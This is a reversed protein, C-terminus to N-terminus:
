ALMDLEFEAIRAALGHRADGEARRCVKVDLRTIRDIHPDLQCDVFPLPPARYLPAQKVKLRMQLSQLRARATTYTSPHYTPFFLFPKSDNLEKDYNDYDSYQGREYEHGITANLILRLRCGHLMTKPLNILGKSKVRSRLIDRRPPEIVVGSKRSGCIRM